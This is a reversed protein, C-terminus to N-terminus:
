TRRRVTILQVYKSVFKEVKEARLSHRKKLKAVGKKMIEKYEDKTIRRRKFYPRLARKMLEDAMQVNKNRDKSECEKANEGEKESAENEEPDEIDMPSDLVCPSNQRIKTPPPPPPPVMFAEMASTNPPLPPVSVPLPQQQSPMLDTSPVLVDERQRNALRNLIANNLTVIANKQHNGLFTNVLDISQQALLQNPLFNQQHQSSFFGMLGSALPQRQENADFAPLSPITTPMTLLQNAPSKLINPVEGLLPQLNPSLLGKPISSYVSHKPPNVLSPLTVSILNPLAASSPLSNPFINVNPKVNANSSSSSSNFRQWRSVKIKSKKM